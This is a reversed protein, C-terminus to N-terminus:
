RAGGEGRHSQSRLEILKGLMNPHPIRRASAVPIRLRRCTRHVDRSHQTRALGLVMVVFCVNKAILSNKFAKSSPDSERTTCHIFRHNPFSRELRAINPPCKDGGVIVILGSQIGGPIDGQVSIEIRSM